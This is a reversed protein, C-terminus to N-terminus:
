GDVIMWWGDMWVERAEDGKVVASEIMMVM